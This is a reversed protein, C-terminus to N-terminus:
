LGPIYDVANWDHMEMDFVAASSCRTASPFPHAIGVTRAGCHAANDFLSRRVPTWHPSTRCGYLDLRWFPGFITIEVGPSLAALYGARRIADYAKTDGSTTNHDTLAFCASNKEAAYTALSEVSLAGDSETSHNHSNQEKHIEDPWRWACRYNTRRQSRQARAAGGATRGTPRCNVFSGRILEATRAADKTLQNATSRQGCAGPEFCRSASKQGQAGHLSLGQWRRRCRAYRPLNQAAAAMCGARLTDPEQQPERKDFTFVM